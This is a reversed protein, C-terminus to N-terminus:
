RTYKWGVHSQSLRLVCVGPAPGLWNNLRDSAQYDAQIFPAIGLSTVDYDYHKGVPRTERLFDSGETAGFQTQKLFVDSWEFDFGAVIQHKLGSFTASSIMGGSVHGNEELPKGPLFHQLFEMESHRLFPRVNLEFSPISRTWSGYLRQSDANRFAEPNLNSRNVAPDRYADQGFIFGATEQELWTASFGLVLDGEMFRTGRKVHLKGQQYGSDERFGGDDAYIVSALWSREPDPPLNAKFRFFDNAGYEMSLYPTSAAGPSPMLVNVIGHLANSGYLANGPGRIVEVSAAQESILELFQNVNCFGSPRVPVGDELLLFGGCSGAGSLVPSRIATLHEQGSGRVAWVGAVRNLLEHIHQHQVQEITTEDLRDINGAHKLKPQARRQATVVVEGIIAEEDIAFVPGSPLLSLQM